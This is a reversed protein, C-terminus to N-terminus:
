FSYFQSLSSETEPSVFYGAQSVRYNDGRSGKFAVMESLARGTSTRGSQLVALRKGELWLVRTRQASFATLAIVRKLWL